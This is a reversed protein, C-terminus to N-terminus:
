ETTNQQEIIRNVADNFQQEANSSERHGNLVASVWRDTCGLEDALMKNTIRHNHMKGVLNGTWKKTLKKEVGKSIYNFYEFGYTVRYTGGFM